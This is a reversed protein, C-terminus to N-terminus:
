KRRYIYVKGIGWSMLRNFPTVHYWNEQYKKPMLTTTNVFISGRSLKNANSFIENMIKKNFCTSNTFVFAANSWDHMFFNGQIFNLKPIVGNHNPFLEQNLNFKNELYQDYESQTDKSM